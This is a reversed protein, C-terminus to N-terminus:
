RRSEKRERIYQFTTGGRRKQQKKGGEITTRGRQTFSIHGGRKKETHFAATNGEKGTNLYHITKRLHFYEKGGGRKKADTTPRDVKRKRGGKKWRVHLHRVRKHFNSGRNKTTNEERDCIEPGKCGQEEEKEKPAITRRCGTRKKGEGLFTLNSLREKVRRWAKIAHRQQTMRWVIEPQHYGPFERKGNEKRELLTRRGGGGGKGPEHGTTPPFYGDKNRERKRSREKTLLAVCQKKGGKEWYSLLPGRHAERPVGHGVTSDVNVHFHNAWQRKKEESDL